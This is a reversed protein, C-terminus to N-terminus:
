LGILDCGSVLVVKVVVKRARGNVLVREARRGFCEKQVVSYWVKKAIRFMSWLSVASKGLM